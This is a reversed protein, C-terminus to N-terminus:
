AESIEDDSDDDDDIGLESNILRLMDRLLPFLRQVTEKTDRLTETARSKDDESLNREYAYSVGQVSLAESAIADSLEKLAKLNIM